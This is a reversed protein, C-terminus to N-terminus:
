DIYFGLCEIEGTGHNFRFLSDLDFWINDFTIVQIDNSVAITKSKFSNSGNQTYTLNCSVTDSSLNKLLVNVNITHDSDCVKNIRTIFNTKSGSAATYVSYSALKLMTPLTSDYISQDNAYPYLETFENIPNKSGFRSLALARNNINGIFPAKGGDINFMISPPNSWIDIQSFSISSDVYNDKAYMFSFFNQEVNIRCSLLGISIYKIKQYNSLTPDPADGFISRYYYTTSGDVLKAPVNYIFNISDIVLNRYFGTILDIPTFDTIDNGIATGDVIVTESNIHSIHNHSFGSNPMSRIYQGQTSEFLIEYIDVASINASVGSTTIINDALICTATPDWQGRFSLYDYFCEWTNRMVLGNGKFQSFYLNRFNSYLLCDVILMGQTVGYETTLYYTTFNLGDIIFETSYDDLTNSTLDSYLAKGGLKWIYTQNDQIPCINVGPSTSGRSYVKAGEINCGYFNSILTPSFYWNGPNICLKYVHNAKKCINIYKEMYTKNDFTDDNAKAGLQNFNITNNDIIMTAYLDGVEEQYDTNSETDTIYYFAGGGDNLTYYGLTQVKLGDVLNAADEVMEVFTNYIKQTQLYSAIIHELTGDEVYEDLKNDIEDQVDLNAFYNAVYNNLDTFAQELEDTKDNWEDELEQVSENMYTQLELFANYLNTISTNQENSNAIVDNLYKVVLCLLEYDTLADFDKEIYPFNTLKQMNLFCLRRFTMVPNINSDQINM